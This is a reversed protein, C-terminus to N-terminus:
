VSLVLVRKSGHTVIQNQHRVWWPGPRGPGGGYRRDGGRHRGRSASTGGAAAAGHRAARHRAATDLLTAKDRQFADVVKVLLSIFPEPATYNVSFLHDGAPTLFAITPWGDQNYRLDVDPRQSEEVRIPIFFANLLAIVEDNSLSTEDLRQCYGCWFATLFVVVPKDHQRAEQFAEDGWEQWKVLHARNTRPSFRLM